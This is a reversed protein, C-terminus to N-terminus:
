VLPGWFLRSPETEDEGLFFEIGAEVFEALSLLGDNNTDIAKFSASALSSDIGLIEFLLAYESEQIMGDSNADIAGFFLPLPGEITGRLEGSNNKLKKMSSVFEPETIANGHGVGSLYKDWVQILKDKLEKGRGPDLRESEIFRDAMGEFDSRTIVGDKDFDIRDFYTRMKRAWFESM